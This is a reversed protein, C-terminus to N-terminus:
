YLAEVMLVTSIALKIKRPWRTSLGYTWFKGLTPEGVPSHWSYFRGEMRPTRRIQRGWPSSEDSKFHMICKTGRDM